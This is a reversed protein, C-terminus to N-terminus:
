NLRTPRGVIVDTHTAQISAARSYRIVYAEHLVKGAADRVVQKYLALTIDWGTIFVTLGHDLPLSIHINIESKAYASLMPSMARESIVGPTEAAHVTQKHLAVLKAGSVDDEQFGNGAVM